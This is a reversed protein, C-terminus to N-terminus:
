FYSELKGTRRVDLTICHFGGGLARGHRLQLPIVNINAKELMQILKPQNQDVVALGPNIMLLNMGFWKSSLPPYSSPYGEEMEPAWIVDWKKLLEPMNDKNVREPNLLVLGPRLFTITTDLHLSSYLNHCAHVNYESGLITQLWIRGLENGGYSVLYFLDKGARLINAADFIPELNNLSLSTSTEADGVSYLSDKLCPKPASIWRAGKKMYELMLDKYAFSEFYRSRLVCPTEIITDGVALLIDRPCYSFYYESEWYPTVIKEEYEMPNPRRVKVGAKKLEHIFRGIDEETEEVVKESFRGVTLEQYVDHSGQNLAQLSKDSMGPMRAYKASGVIVEELPDWENYVEVIKM